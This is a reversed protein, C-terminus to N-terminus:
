YSNVGRQVSPNPLLRRKNRQALRHLRAEQQNNWIQKRAAKRIKMDAEAEEITNGIGCSITIQLRHHIVVGFGDEIARRTAEAFELPVFAVFEDGLGYRFARLAFNSIVRATQIILSDGAEHSAIKNVLGFDNGDIFLIATDPDAEATERALKLARDNGVGTKFDTNAEREARNRREAGEPWVVDAIIQRIPLM